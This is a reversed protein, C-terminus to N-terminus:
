PVHFHKKTASWFTFSLTQWFQAIAGTRKEPASQLTRMVYVDAASCDTSLLADACQWHKAFCSYIFNDWTKCFMLSYFQRMNQLLYKWFDEAQLNAKVVKNVNGFLKQHEFCSSYRKCSKEKKCIFNM